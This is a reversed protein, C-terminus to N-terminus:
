VHRIIGQADHHRAVLQQSCRAALLGTPWFSGPAVRLQWASGPAAWPSATAAHYRATGALLETPCQDPAAQLQEPAIQIIYELEGNETPKWGVDVGIAAVLLLTIGHM